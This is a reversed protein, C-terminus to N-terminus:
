ILLAMDPTSHCALDVIVREKTTYYYHAKRL